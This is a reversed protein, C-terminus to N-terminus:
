AVGDPQTNFPLDGSPQQRVAGFLAKAKTASAQEQRFQADIARLRAMRDASSQQADDPTVGARDPGDFAARARDFDRAERLSEFYDDDEARRM